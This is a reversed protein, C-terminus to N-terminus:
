AKFNYLFFNLAGVITTISKDKSALDFDKLFQDKNSSLQISSSNTDTSSPQALDIQMGNDNQQGRVSGYKEEDVLVIFHPAISPDFTIKVTHIRDMKSIFVQVGSLKLFQLDDVLQINSSHFAELELIVETKEEKNENDVASYNNSVMNMVDKAIKLIDCCKYIYVYIHLIIPSCYFVKTNTIKKKKKKKKLFRYNINSSQKKLINSSTILALLSKSI